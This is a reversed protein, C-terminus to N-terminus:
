MLLLHTGGGLRAHKAKGPRRSNMVDATAGFVGFGSM